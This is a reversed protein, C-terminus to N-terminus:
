KINVVGADIWRGPRLMDATLVQCKVTFKGPAPFKVTLNAEQDAPYTETSPTWFGDESRREDLVVRYRVPTKGLAPCKLTVQQEGVVGDKPGQVVTPAAEVDFPKGHELVFRDVIKNDIGYVTYTLTDENIDMVSYHPVIRETQMFPYNRGWDSENGICGNIIHVVGNLYGREYDHTHGSLVMTAGHKELLPLVHTRIDMDGGTDWSKWNLSYAPQHYYVFRWRASKWAESNLQEVLWKYQPSDPTIPTDYHTLAIFQANGYHFTFYRAGQDTDKAYPLYRRSWYRGSADHNGAAVYLPVNQMLKAAPQLFFDDWQDAEFGHCLYDGCHIAVDPEHALLRTTVARTFMNYHTDSLVGVRFPVGPGPDTKFSGNGASLEGSQAAFFYKVGPKLGTITIDHMFSAGDQKVTETYQGATQGFQVSGDMPTLTEWLLRASTGTVGLLYATKLVRPAATQEPPIDKWVQFAGLDLDGGAAAMLGCRGAATSANDCAVTKMGNLVLTIHPGYAQVEITSEGSPLYGFVSALTQTKGNTIQRIELTERTTILAILGNAADKARLIVGIEGCKPRRRVTCRITCDTPTTAKALAIDVINEAAKPPTMKAPQLWQNRLTWYPGPPVTKEAVLAIASQDWNDLTQFNNSWLPEAAISTRLSCLVALLVWLVVRTKMTTCEGFHITLSLPLLM